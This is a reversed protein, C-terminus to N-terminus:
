AGAAAALRGVEALWAARRPDRLMGAAEGVVPPAFPGGAERALRTALVRVAEPDVLRALEVRAEPGYSGVVTLLSQSASTNTKALRVLTTLLALLQLETM